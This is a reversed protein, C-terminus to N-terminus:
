LGNKNNKDKEYKKIYNQISRYSIKIGNRNCIEELKRSSFGRNNIYIFIVQYYRMESNTYLKMGYINAIELLKQKSIKYKKKVISLNEEVSKHEDLMSSIIRLRNINM